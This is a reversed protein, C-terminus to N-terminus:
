ATFVAFVNQPEEIQNGEERERSEAAAAAVAFIRERPLIRDDFKTGTQEEDRKRRYYIM